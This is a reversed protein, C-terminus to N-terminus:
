EIKYKYPGYAGDYATPPSTDLPNRKEASYKMGHRNSVSQHTLHALSSHTNGAVNRAGFHKNAHTLLAEYMASGLGKKRHQNHVFSEGVDVAGRDLEGTIHGVKGDHNHYMRINITGFEPNHRLEMDYGM